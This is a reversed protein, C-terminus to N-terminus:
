NNTGRIVRTVGDTADNVGSNFETATCGSLMLVALMSIVALRIM